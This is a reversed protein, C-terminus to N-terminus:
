STMNIVCVAWWPRRQATYIFINQIHWCVDSNSLATLDCLRRIVNKINQRCLRKWKFIIVTPKRERSFVWIRNENPYLALQAIERFELSFIQFHLSFYQGKSIYHNSWNEKRKRACCNMSPYTRGVTQQDWTWKEASLASRNDLWNLHPM